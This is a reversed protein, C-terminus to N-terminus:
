AGRAKATEKTTTAKLAIAKRVDPKTGIPEAGLVICELECKVHQPADRQELLRDSWSEAWEKLQDVDLPSPV